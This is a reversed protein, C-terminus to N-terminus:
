KRLRECLPLCPSDKRCWFDGLNTTEIIEFESLVREIIEKKSYPLKNYFRPNFDRFSPIKRGLSDITEMGTFIIDPRTNLVYDLDTREHGVYGRLQLGNHAIHKDILGIMDIIKANSYYGLAGIPYAAISMNPVDNRMKGFLRGLDAWQNVWHNHSYVEVAPETNRRLSNQYGSIIFLGIIVVSIYWKINLKEYIKILGASTLIIIIPLVPQMFRGCPFWDGTTYVTFAAFTLTLIILAMIEHRKIEIVTYILFPIFYVFGGGYIFFKMLHYIGRAILSPNVGSIKAYYTNPFFDNYYNYRWIILAALIVVVPLILPILSSILEGWNRFRYRIILAIILAFLVIIGEPRTLATLGAAVGTLWLLTRNEVASIYLYYTLTVLFVMLATEMGSHAYLGFDFRLSLLLIGIAAVLRSKPVLKVGIQFVLIITGISLFIGIWRAAEPISLGIFGALALILTWLVSSFGEVFEGPNYVLGHGNALNEAYRYFIFSDDWTINIAMSQILIIIAATIIAATAILKDKRPIKEDPNL